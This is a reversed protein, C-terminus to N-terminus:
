FSRCGGINYKSAKEPLVAGYGRAAPKLIWYYFKDNFKFVARNYPELPDALTEVEESLEETFENESYTEKHYDLTNNIESAYKRDVVMLHNQNCKFYKIKPKAESLKFFDAPYGESYFFLSFFLISLLCFYKM